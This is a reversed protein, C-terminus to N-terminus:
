VNWFKEYKNENLTCTKMFEDLRTKLFDFNKFDNHNKSVENSLFYDYQEKATYANKSIIRKNKHMTDVISDFTKQLAEPDMSSMVVPNLCAANRVLKYKVPSKGQTKKIVVQLFELFGKKLGDHFKSPVKKLVSAAVTSLKIQSVGAINESKQM